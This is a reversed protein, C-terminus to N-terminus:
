EVCGMLFLNTLARCSRGPTAQLQKGGAQTEDTLIKLSLCFLPPLSPFFFPEQKCVMQKENQSEPSPKQTTCKENWLVWPSPSGPLKGEQAAGGPGQLSGALHCRCQALGLQARLPQQIDRTFPCLHEPIPFLNSISSPETAVLFSLFHGAQVSTSGWHWCSLSACLDKSRQCFTKQCRGSNRSFVERLKKPFAFADQLFGRWVRLIFLSFIFFFFPPNTRGPTKSDNGLKTLIPLQQPQTWLVAQFSM